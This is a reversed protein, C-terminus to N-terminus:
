SMNDRVKKLDIQVYEERTDIFDPGNQGLFPLAFNENQYVALKANNITGIPQDIELSVKVRIPPVDDGEQYPTGSTPNVVSMSFLAQNTLQSAQFVPRIAGSQFTKQLDACLVKKWKTDIMPLINTVQTNTAFAQATAASSIFQTSTGPVQCNVTIMAEANNTATAVGGFTRCQPLVWVSVKRVRCFTENAGGVQTPDTNFLNQAVDWVYTTVFQDVGVAAFDNTYDFFDTVTLGLERKTTVSGTGGGRGMSKPLPLYMDHPSRSPGSGFGGALEPAPFRGSDPPFACQELLSARSKSQKAADGAQTTRREAPGRKGAVKALQSMAPNPPASKLANWNMIIDQLHM